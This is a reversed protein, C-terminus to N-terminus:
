IINEWSFVVNYSHHQGRYIKNTLFTNNPLKNILDPLNYNIPLKLVVLSAMKNTIIDFCIDIININSLFLDLCQTKIYDPGGWPVDMYIVDQQLRKYVDLYDGCHVHETPINYVTLNHKLMQCITPDIEVANVQRFGALHFSITNGGVNSAADTIIPCRSYMPKLIAKQERTDTYFNFITRSISNAERWPTTSYSSVESLQLESVEVGEVPQFFYSNGLM